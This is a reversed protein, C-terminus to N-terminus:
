QDFMAPMSLAKALAMVPSVEVGLSMGAGFIGRFLVADFVGLFFFDTM